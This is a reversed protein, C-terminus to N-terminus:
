RSEVILFTVDDDIIRMDQHASISAYVHEAISQAPSPAEAFAEALRAIGYEEGSANGAEIIGDTSLLLTEGPLFVSESVDYQSDPFVGLPRGSASVSRVDGDVSRRLLAPQAASVFSMVGPRLELLVGTAYLVDDRAILCEYLMRNLATFQEGIEPLPRVEKMLISLLAALIGARLGHGSMDMLWLRVAGDGDSDWGFIDGSLHCYSELVATVGCVDGPPPAAPLLAHQLKHANELLPDMDPFTHPQYFFYQAPASISKRTRQMSDPPCWTPEASVDVLSLLQSLAEGLSQGTLRYDLDIFESATDLLRLM